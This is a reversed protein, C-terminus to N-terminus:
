EAGAANQNELRTIIIGAIRTLFTLLILITFVSLLGYIAQKGAEGWTWDSSHKQEIMEWDNDMVAKVVGGDEVTILAEHYTNTNDTLQEDTRISNDGYGENTCTFGFLFRWKEPGAPEPALAQEISDEIGDFSFTPSALLYEKAVIRSEKKVKWASDDSSTTDSDDDCAALPLVILGIFLLVFSLSIKHM